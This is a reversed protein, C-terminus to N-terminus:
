RRTSVPPRAPLGPTCTGSKRRHAALKQAYLDLEDKLHAIQQDRAAVRETLAAHQATKETLAARSRGRVALATIVASIVAAAAALLATLIIDMSSVQRENAPMTAFPSFTHLRRLFAPRDRGDAPPDHCHLCVKM